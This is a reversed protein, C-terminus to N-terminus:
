VFMGGDVLINQGYLNSAADSAVMVIMSALEEPSASDERLKAKRGLLTYDIGEPLSLNSVMDTATEGPLVANCRVGQKGFEVQLARTLASVGGKSACYLSQYGNGALAAISSINVINGKSELLHPIAARCHLWTGLLNINVVRHFQEISTDQLREILLIGANNVMVNLKGFRDVCAQVAGNVQAENSVDCIQYAADAGQENSLKVTDKLGTENVDSIFVSAGESAFLIATARGIGSAAGTVYVVKDEFRKM